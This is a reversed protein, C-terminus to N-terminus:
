APCKSWAPGVFTPENVWVEEYGVPSVCGEEIVADHWVSSVILALPHEGAAALVRKMVASDVLRSAVLTARLPRDDKGKHLSLRM